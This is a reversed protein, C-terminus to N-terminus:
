WPRFYHHFSMCANLMTLSEAFASHPSLIMSIIQKQILFLLILWGHLVTPYLESLLCTIKQSNELPLLFWELVWCREISQIIFHHAEGTMCWMTISNCFFTSLKDLSFFLLFTCYLLSPLFSTQLLSICCSFSIFSLSILPVIFCCSFWLASLLYYLSFLSLLLLLLLIVLVVCSFFIAHSDVIQFSWWSVFGIRVRSHVHVSIM